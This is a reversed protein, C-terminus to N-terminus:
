KRKNKTITERLNTIADAQLKIISDRESIEIKLKEITESNRRLTNHVSEKSRLQGVIHLRLQDIKAEYVDNISKKVWRGIPTRPQIYEKTPIEELDFLLPENNM